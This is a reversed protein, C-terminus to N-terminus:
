HHRLEHATLLPLKVEFLTAGRRVLVDLGALLRFQEQLNRLGLQEGKALKTKPQVNNSVSVYGGEERLEIHLPHRTSAVNHKIANEVLMQISLPPVHRQLVAPPLHNSVRVANEHRIKNLYVYSEVFAMEEAVTVTPQDKRSLVYRYVSAMEDLFEQAPVNDGVLAALTNLGNFLFHPDVQQKLAALQSVAREKELWAARLYYRKWEAFFYASEYIAMVVVTATLSCVLCSQYAQWFSEVPLLLWSGLLAFALNLTLTYSLCSLGQRILRTTTMEYSPYARRMAFFIQRNGEWCCITCFLSFLLHPWNGHGRLLPVLAAVVLIGGVRVQPESLEWRAFRLLVRPSIQFSESAAFAPAEATSLPSVAAEM